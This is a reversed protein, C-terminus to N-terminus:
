PLIDSNQIQYWFLPANDQLTEYPLTQIIVEGKETLLSIHTNHHFGTGFQIRQNRRQLCWTVIVTLIPIHVTCLWGPQPPSTDHASQLTPTKIIGKKGCEM